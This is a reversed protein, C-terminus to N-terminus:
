CQQIYKKILEINTVITQFQTELEKMCLVIGKINTKRYINIYTQFSEIYRLIIVSKDLTEYLISINTHVIDPLSCDLTVREINSFEDHINTLIHEICSDDKVCEQFARIVNQIADNITDTNM